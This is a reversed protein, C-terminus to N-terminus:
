TASGALETLAAQVIRAVETADAPDPQVRMRRLPLKYIARVRHCLEESNVLVVDARRLALRELAQIWGWDDASARDQALSHLQLVLPRGTRQRIELAALWTPWDTAYIIEFQKGAALPTAFRAYQIVRFNLDGPAGAENRLIALADDTSAREAAAALKPGLSIEETTEPINEPTAEPAQDLTLNDEAQSLAAAEAASPEAGEIEFADPLLLAPVTVDTATEAEAPQVPAPLPAAQEDLGPGADQSSGTYPAAPANWATRGPTAQRMAAVAAQVEAATLNGLSTVNASAPFPAAEASLHPMLVTVDTQPVLAQALAQPTPAEADPLPEDWGLLLVKLNPTGM